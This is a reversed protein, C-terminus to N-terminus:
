VVLFYNWYRLRYTSNCSNFFSIIFISILFANWYRLRYTSNCRDVFSINFIMDATEIGCATLVTAVPSLNLIRKSSGLAHKLVALPLYQQLLIAPINARIPYVLKLVALPLYQQLVFHKIIADMMCHTEIGCATLVTAVPNNNVYLSNLLSNWYRLRYTSNCCISIRFLFPTMNNHKLVALPLYQQLKLALRSLREKATEIGCATLVTAVAPGLFGTNM